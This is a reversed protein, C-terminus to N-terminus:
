KKQAILIFQSNLNTIDGIKYLVKIVAKEIVSVNLKDIPYDIGDRFIIKFGFRELIRIMAKM